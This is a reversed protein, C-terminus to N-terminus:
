PSRTGFLDQYNIGPMLTCVCVSMWVVEMPLVAAGGSGRRGRHHIKLGVAGLHQRQGPGPTPVLAVQVLVACGPVLVVADRCHREQM